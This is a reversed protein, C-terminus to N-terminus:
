FEETGFLRLRSRLLSPAPCQISQYSLILFKFLKEKQKIAGSTHILKGIRYGGGFYNLKELYTLGRLACARGGIGGVFFFTKFNQFNKLNEAVFNGDGSLKAPTPTPFTQCSIVPPLFFYKQSSIIWKEKWCSRREFIFMYFKCFNYMLVLKEQSVFM